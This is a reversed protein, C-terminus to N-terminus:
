AENDPETPSQPKIQSVTKYRPIEQIEYRGSTPRYHPHLNTRPTAAKPETTGHYIQMGSSDRRFLSRTTSPYFPSSEMLRDLHENSDFYDGNVRYGALPSSSQSPTLNPLQSPTVPNRIVLAISSSETINNVEQLNHNRNEPNDDGLYHGEDSFHIMSIPEFMDSSTKPILQQSQSPIQVVSTQKVLVEELTNANEEPNTFEPQNIVSNNSDTDEFISANFMPHEFDIDTSLQGNFPQQLYLFEDIDQDEAFPQILNEDIYDLSFSEELDQMQDENSVQNTTLTEHLQQNSYRPQRPEEEGAFVYRLEFKYGVQYPNSPRSVAPNLSTHENHSPLNYHPQNGQDNFDVLDEGTQGNNPYMQDSADQDNYDFESYNNSLPNDFQFQDGYGNNQYTQPHSGQYNLQSSANSRHSRSHPQSSRPNQYPNVSRSQNKFFVIPQQYSDSKQIHHVNTQQTPETDQSSRQNIESNARETQDEAENGAEGDIMQEGAFEDEDEEQHRQQELLEEESFGVEILDEDDVSPDEVDFDDEEIEEIDSVPEVIPDNPDEQFPEIEGEEAEFIGEDDNDLPFGDDFMRDDEQDAERERDDEDAMWEDDYDAFLQVDQYPNVKSDNGDASDGANLGDLDNGTLQYHADDFRDREEPVDEADNDFSHFQQFGGVVSSKIRWNTPALSSSPHYTVPVYTYYSEHDDAAQRSQALSRSSTSAHTIDKQNYPDQTLSMQSASTQPVYVIRGPGQPLISQDSNQFTVQSGIRNLFSKDLAYHRRFCPNSKPLKNKQSSSIKKYTVNRTSGQSSSQSNKQGLAQQNKSLKPCTALRSSYAQAATKNLERYCSIHYREDSQLIVDTPNLDAVNSSGNPDDGEYIHASKEFRNSPLIVTNGFHYGQKSNFSPIPREQLNYNFIPTPNQITSETHNRPIDSFPQQYNEGSGPIAITLPTIEKANKVANEAIKSKAANRAGAGKNKKPGRRKPPTYNMENRFDKPPQIKTRLSYHSVVDTSNRARSKSKTVESAPANEDNGEELTNVVERNNTIHVDVAENSPLINIKAVAVNNVNHTVQSVLTPMHHDQVTLQIDDNHNDTEAIFLNQDLKPLDEPMAIAVPHHDLETIDESAKVSPNQELAPIDQAITTAFEVGTLGQGIDMDKTLQDLIQAQVLKDNSDAEKTILLPDLETALRRTRSSTGQSRNLKELAKQAKAKRRNELLEAKKLAQNRLTKAKKANRAEEKVKAKAANKQARLTAQAALLSMSRNSAGRPPIFKITTNKFERAHRQKIIDVYKKVGKYSRSILDIDAIVFCIRDDVDGPNPEVRRFHKEQDFIHRVNGQFNRTTINIDKTFYPYYIQIFDYIENLTMRERPAQSFAHIIMQMYSERYVCKELFKNEDETRLQVPKKAVTAYNFIEDAIPTNAIVEDANLTPAITEDATSTNDITEDGIPPSESRENEISPSDITESNIEMIQETTIQPSITKKTCVNIGEEVNVRYNSNRLKKPSQPTEPSECNLNHSSAKQSNDYGSDVSGSSDSVDTKNLDVAYAANLVNAKRKAARTQKSPSTVQIVISSESSIVSCNSSLDSEQSTTSSVSNRSYTTEVSSVSSSITDEKERDTMESLDSLSAPSKDKVEESPKSLSPPSKGRIVQSLKSVIALSKETIVEKEVPILSQVSDQIHMPSDTNLSSSNIAPTINETMVTEVPEGTTLPTDKNIENSLVIMSSITNRSDGADAQTIAKVTSELPLQAQTKVQDTLLEEPYCSIRKVGSAPIVEPKSKLYEALLMKMFVPHKTFRSIQRSWDQNLFDFTKSSDSEKVCDLSQDNEQIKEFRELIGYNRFNPAMIIEYQTGDEWTMVFVCPKYCLGTKDHAADMVKSQLNLFQIVNATKEESRLIEKGPDTDTVVILVNYAVRRKQGALNSYEGTEVTNDIKSNRSGTNLPFSGQQNGSRRSSSPGSSDDSDDEYEKDSPIDDPSYKENSKRRFARLLATVKQTTTFKVAQENLIFAEGHTGRSEVAQKSIPPNNEVPVTVTRRITDEMSMLAATDAYFVEERRSLHLEVLAFNTHNITPDLSTPFVGSLNSNADGTVLNEPRYNTVLSGNEDLFGETTGILDM